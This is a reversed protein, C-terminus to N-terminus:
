QPLAASYRAAFTEPNGSIPLLSYNEVQGIGNVSFLDKFTNLTSDFYYFKSDEKCYVIHGDEIVNKNFLALDAKTSILNRADLPLSADLGFNTILNIGGVPKAM